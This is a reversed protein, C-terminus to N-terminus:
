VGDRGPPPTKEHDPLLTAIAEMLDMYDSAPFLRATHNINDHPAEPHDENTM